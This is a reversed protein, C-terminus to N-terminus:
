LALGTIFLSMLDRVDEEITDMGSSFIRHTRLSNIADLFLIAIKETNMPRLKGTEVGEDLATAFLNVHFWYWSRKNSIDKDLTHFVLNGFTKLLPKNKEAHKLSALACEELKLVPDHDSAVIAELEREMPEFCYGFVSRLLAQKDKFYLYITGKAFGARSAIRQMTLGKVGKELLVSVASDLIDKRSLEEILKKRDSKRDHL